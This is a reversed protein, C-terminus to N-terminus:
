IIIYKNKLFISLRVMKKRFFIKNENLITATNFTNSIFLRKHFIM